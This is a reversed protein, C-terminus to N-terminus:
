GIIKLIAASLYDAEVTNQEQIASKLAVYMTWLSLLSKNCDCDPYNCFDVESAFKAFLATEVEELNYIYQTLIETDALGSEEDISFTFTWLGNILDQSDAVAIPIIEALNDYQLADLSASPYTFQTADPRTIVLDWGAIADSPDLALDASDKHLNPDATGRGYGTPNTTADYMGTVDNLYITNVNFDVTDYTLQLDVAM